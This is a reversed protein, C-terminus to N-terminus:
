HPWRKPRLWITKIKSKNKQISQKFSQQSQEKSLLSKKLFFTSLRYKRMENTIDRKDKNLSFSVLHTGFFKSKYCFLM